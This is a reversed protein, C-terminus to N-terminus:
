MRAQGAAFYCAVRLLINQSQKAKNWVPVDNIRAADSMRLWGSNRFEEGTQCLTFRVSQVDQNVVVIRQALGVGQQIIVANEDVFRRQARAIGFPPCVPLGSQVGGVFDDTKRIRASAVNLCTIRIAGGFKDDLRM